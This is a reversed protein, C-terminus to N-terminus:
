KTGDVLSPLLMKSLNFSPSNALGKLVPNMSFDINISPRLNIIVKDLLMCLQAKKLLDEEAYKYGLRFVNVAQRQSETLAYKAIVEFSDTQMYKEFNPNTIAQPSLFRLDQDIGDPNIEKSNEICLAYRRATSELSRHDCCGDAASVGATQLAIILSILLKLKM